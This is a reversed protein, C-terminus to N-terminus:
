RVILLIGSPLMLANEYDVDDVTLKVTKADARAFDLGYWGSAGDLGTEVPEGDVTLATAGFPIPLVNWAAARHWKRTGEPVYAATATAGSAASKVWGLKATKPEGKDFALMLTYVNEDATPLTLEQSTATLDAYEELYNHGAVTLTAKTAGAPLTWSVTFTAGPATHWFWTEEPKAFVAIPESEGAVVEGIPAPEGVELDSPMFVRFGVTKERNGVTVAKRCEGSNLTANKVATNYLGGMALRYTGATEGDWKLTPDERCVNVDGKVQTRWEGQTTYWWDVCMEGVNGHLDYLGQMGVNCSGVVATASAGLQAHPYADDDVSFPSGDNWEQFTCSSPGYCKARSQFASTWECGTPLDFKIGGMKTRLKGLFSNPDPDNPWYYKAEEGEGGKKGRVENYTIQEVPRTEGSFGCNAASGYVNEWQKQTTEFVAAYFDSEAVYTDSGYGLIRGTEGKAAIYRMAIHSTKYKGDENVGTWVLNTYPVPKGGSLSPEEEGIWHYSGYLGSVIKAPTIAEASGDTLSYVKYLAVSWTPDPEVPTLRVKLTPIEVKVGTLGSLDLALSYTGDAVIVPTKSEVKLGTANLPVDGDFLSVEVATAQTVGTITYDVNVRGSWPWDQRVSGVEVTVASFGCLTMLAFAISFVHKNM